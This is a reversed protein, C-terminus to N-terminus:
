ICSRWPETRPLLVSAIHTWPFRHSSNPQLHESHPHDKWRLSLGKGGMTVTLATIYIGLALQFFTVAAFGIAIAANKM